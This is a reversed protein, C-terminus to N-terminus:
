DNYSVLKSKNLIDESVRVNWLDFAEKETDVEKTETGCRACHVYFTRCQSNDIKYTYHGLLPEGGCFPCVKLAAIIM